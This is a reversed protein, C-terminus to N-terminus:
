AFWAGYKEPVTAAKLGGTPLFDPACTKRKAWM